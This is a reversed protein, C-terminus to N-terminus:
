RALYVAITRELGDRWIMALWECFATAFRPESALDSYYQKQALWAQPDTKAAKAVTNLDDWFPDNPEITSGDERTGECMRAWVASM